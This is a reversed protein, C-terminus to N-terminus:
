YADSTSLLRQHGLKSLDGAARYHCYDSNHRALSLDSLPADVCNIHNCGIQYEFTPGLFPNRAPNNSPVCADPKSTHTDVQYYHNVNM